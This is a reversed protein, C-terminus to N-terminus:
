GMSGQSATAIINNFKIDPPTGRCMLITSSKVTFDREILLETLHRNGAFTDLVVPRSSDLRKLAGDLVNEIAGTSPHAVAAPGITSFRDVPGFMAFDTRNEAVVCLREAKITKLLRIRNDDWYEGDLDAIRSFNYRDGLPPRSTRRGSTAPREWRCIGALPKFGFRGYLPEARPAATLLATRCDHRSIWDLAHALLATGLGQGRRQPCVLLNGIWAARRHMFVTVGGWVTEGDVAVAAYASRSRRHIEFERNECIWGEARGWRLMEDFHRTKMNRIDPTKEVSINRM